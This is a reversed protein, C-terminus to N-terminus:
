IKRGDTSNDEFLSRRFAYDEDTEDPDRQLEYHQLSFPQVDIEDMQALERVAEIAKDDPEALGLRRRHAVLRAMAGDPRGADTATRQDKHDQGM